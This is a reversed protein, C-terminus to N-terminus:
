EHGEGFDNAINPEAVLPTKITVATEMCKKVFAAFEEAQDERVEFVYEDHIQMLMYADWVNETNIKIGSRNMISASLGQIQFNRANNIGNKYDLYLSKVKDKGLKKSLKARYEWNMLKEGHIRYLRAVEPLHRIRGTLTKMFGHEHVFDKSWDMWEKLKPFGELYAVIVEKAKEKTTNLLRSIQFEGAGYPISLAIAKSRQRLEPRIKKLYNEATKKASVGEVKFAQIAIRSYLDENDTFVKILNPDSSVAAFVRPELSSQDSIIMKYGSRAKFLKRILNILAVVEPYLNGEDGEEIPRPLQQINSSLRGSITGHQKFYGYFIGDETNELVGRLYTGEVKLLKNYNTLMIAWDYGKNALHEIMNDNFQPAGKDTTSLPKIKFYNFVLEGVQLKSAINIPADGKTELMIKRIEFLDENPLPYKDPDKFFNVAFHGSVDKDLVKSTISYKGSKTKPFDLNYYAVIAQGMAGGKKVPFLKALRDRFWKKYEETAQLKQLIDKEYQKLLKSVEGQMYEMLEMDLCIGRDEMPIVCKKYFPMVEDDYFFEELNEKELSERFLFGLKLTYCADMCAYPGMAELDAKYMEFNSKTTSGGNKAVNEKLIIQEENAAKEMDMGLQEQYKIMVEKLRFPPAEDVTHKMLMVDAMLADTLDINFYNRTVRIDFSANWMLLEKDLLKKIVDKVQDYSWMERLQQAKADWTLHPMYFGTTGDGSISFGIVRDKRVNLGTTETDYALFDCSDIHEILEQLDEDSRVIKYVNKV